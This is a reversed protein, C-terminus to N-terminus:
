APLYKVLWIIGAVLAVLSSLSAALGFFLHIGVMWWRPVSGNKVDSAMALFNAFVIVISFGFISAALKLLVLSTM